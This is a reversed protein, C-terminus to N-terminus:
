WLAEVDTEALALGMTDTLFQGAESPSLRLQVERIETLQGYARLRALPLLPDSRTALVLHLCAPAHALLFALSQGILPEEIVQYDDLILTLAEDRSVLTNLLETLLRPLVAADMAELWASAKEELSPIGTRLALLVYTWFRLPDNELSELTLWAVHGRQTHAWAALLTTKGYGAGASLLILPLRSELLEILHPRPLISARVPPVTVKTLLYDDLSAAFPAARALRTAGDAGALPEGLPQPPVLPSLGAFPDTM